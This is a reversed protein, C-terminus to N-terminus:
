KPESGQNGTDEDKSEKLDDRQNFEIDLKKKLQKHRLQKTKKKGQKTRPSPTLVLLENDDIHKDKYENDESHYSDGETYKISIGYLEIDSDSFIPKNDHVFYGTWHISQPGIMSFILDHVSNFELEFRYSEVIYPVLACLIIPRKM